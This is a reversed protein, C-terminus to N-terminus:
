PFLRSAVKEYFCGAHLWDRLTNYPIPLLKAADLLCMEKEAITVLLNRSTNRAQEQRTAWRVNNPFYGINNDIRELTHAPSPRKGVHALFASFSEVWEPAIGRERYKEGNERNPNLARTKIGGWIGYEELNESALGAIRCKKCGGVVTTSRLNNGALEKQSGCKTCVCLWRAGKKTGEVRSVIKWVGLTTGAMDVVRM